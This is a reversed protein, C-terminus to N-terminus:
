PELDGDDRNRSTPTAIPERKTRVVPTSPLEVPKPSRVLRPPPITEAESMPAPKAATMPAVHKQVSTPVNAVAQQPPLRNASMVAVVVVGIVGVLLGLKADNPM